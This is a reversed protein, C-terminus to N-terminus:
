FWYWFRLWALKFHPCDNNKNLQGQGKTREKWRIVGKSPDRREKREFCSPHHCMKVFCSSKLLRISPLKIGHEDVNEEGDVFDKSVSIETGRFLRCKKCIVTEIM